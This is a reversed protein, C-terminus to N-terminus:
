DDVDVETETEADGSSLAADWWSADKESSVSSKASRGRRAKPVPSWESLEPVTEPEPESADGAPESDDDAVVVDDPAEVAVADDAAAAGDAITDDADAVEAQADGIDEDSVPEDTADERDEDKEGDPAVPPAAWKPPSSSEIVSPPTKGESPPPAEWQPSRVVPAPRAVAGWEGPTTPATGPPTRLPSAAAAIVGATPAPVPPATWNSPLGVGSGDTSVEMVIPRGVNAMAVVYTACVFDGIRRRPHTALVMFGGIFFFGVDVLLFAWRGFIRLPAPKHGESDVVSLRMCIKGVTAGTVGQLVVGDLFGVFLTVLIALKAAGAHWLIARSGIKLCIPNAAAKRLVSCANAPVGTFVRYRLFAFVVLGLLGVLAADILFAAARRGVVDTPDDPPTTASAM